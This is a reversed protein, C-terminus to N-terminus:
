PPLHCRGKSSTGSLSYPKSLIYLCLSSPSASAQASYRERLCLLREKPPKRHCGVYYRRIHVDDSSGKHFYQYVQYVPNDPIAQWNALVRIISVDNFTFSDIVVIYIWGSTKGGFVPTHVSISIIAQYFLLYLIPFIISAM